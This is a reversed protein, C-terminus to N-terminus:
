QQGYINLVHKFDVTGERVLVPAKDTVDVITSQAGPLSFLCEVVLDAQKKLLAPISEIKKPYGKVGSITASTSIIPGCIDIIDRLFKLEAMRIAVTSRSGSASEKLSKRKKFLLTLPEPDRTDWFRNIINKAAPNVDSAFSELDDLKSILIIFPQIKNRNKIKQIREISDKRDYRCSLGYITGTPLIAIKGDKISKAIKLIAARDVKNTNKIRITYMPLYFTITKLIYYKKQLYFGCLGYV